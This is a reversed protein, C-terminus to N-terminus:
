YTYIGINGREDFRGSAEDRMKAAPWQSISGVSNVLQM